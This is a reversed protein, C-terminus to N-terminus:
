EYDDFVENTISLHYIQKDNDWQNELAQGIGRKQLPKKPVGFLPM